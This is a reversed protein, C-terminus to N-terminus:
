RSFCLHVQYRTLPSGASRCPHHESVPHCQTVTTYLAGPAPTPRHQYRQFTDKFEISVAGSGGVGFTVVRPHPQRKQRLSNPWSNCSPRLAKHGSFFCLSARTGARRFGRGKGATGQFRPISGLSTRLAPTLPQLQPELSTISVCPVSLVGSPSFRQSVLVIQSLHQSM